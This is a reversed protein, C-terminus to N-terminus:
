GSGSATGRRPSAPTRLLPDARGLVDVGARPDPEVVRHARELQRVEDAEVDHEPDHADELVAEALLVHARRPDERSSTSPRGDRGSSPGPSRCRGARAARSPRHSARVAPRRRACRAPGPGDDPKAGGTCSTRTGRVRRAGGDGADGAVPRVSRATPRRRRRTGRAGTARSRRDGRSRGRDSRNSRAGSARGCRRCDRRGGRCRAVAVLPVPSWDVSRVLSRAYGRHRHRAATRREARPPISGPGDRRPPRMGARSDGSSPAALRRTAGASTTPRDPSNRRRGIILLMPARGPAPSSM